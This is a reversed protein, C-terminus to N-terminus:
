YFVNELYYVYLVGEPLGLAETIADLKQISLPRQHNFIRSIESLHIESKSALETKNVNRQQMYMVIEQYLAGNM